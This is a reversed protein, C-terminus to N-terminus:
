IKRELLLDLVLQTKSKKMNIASINEAVYMNKSVIFKLFNALVFLYNLSFSDIFIFYEIAYFKNCLIFIWSLHMLSVVNM